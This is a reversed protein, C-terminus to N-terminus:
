EDKGGLPKKLLEIRERSEGLWGEDDLIDLAEDVAENWISAVDRGKELEAAYAEAEEADRRAAALQESTTALLKTLAETRAEAKLQAEYAEQAQGSAALLELADERRAKVLAEIRDAALQCPEWEVQRMRAILQEDTM